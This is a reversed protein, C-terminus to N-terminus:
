SCMWMEQMRASTFFASSPALIPTNGALGTASCSGGCLLV